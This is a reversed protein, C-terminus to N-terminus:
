PSIMCPKQSQLPVYKPSVSRATTTTIQIDTFHFQAAKEANPGAEEITVARGRLRFLNIWQSRALDFDDVGEPRNNQGRDLDGRASVTKIM